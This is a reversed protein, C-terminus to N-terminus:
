IEQLKEQIAANKEEIKIAMNEKYEKMKERLAPYGVSLIQVALLAANEAGDIAVTAVPIGSPMQVISLLSDLGDMTSSKIPLGIVPLPTYAALVGPLHAAKGAAAIIVEFGNKEADRAFDAAKDPTRHASCVMVEVEIGFGRLTKICGKITPFDSDSGMIVAAKPKESDGM